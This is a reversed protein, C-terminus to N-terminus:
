KFWGFVSRTGLSAGIGGAISGVIGGIVTGVGPCIATGAAAGAWAGASGGAIGSANCAANEAVEGATIEGRYLSVVDPITQAVLMAGGVIANGRVAKTMVNKAAAGAVQKGAIATAVKQVAQKGIETECVANVLHKSGVTIGAAASRGLSTRLGQQVGVGVLLATGGSTVSKKTADKLADKQSKGELLASAYTIGFTLGATLACTVAQTKVDFKISDLNGARAINRAEEYSVGGRMVISRADAPNTVGPVEGKRIRDAFLDVAKEYQDAPVELKMGPYRYQGNDFASNVSKWASDFYKTQVQVRDVIRDAGNLTNKLGVKDVKHGHMTDALANADEAAFGTAGKAHYKTWQQNDMCKAAEQSAFGNVASKLNKEM